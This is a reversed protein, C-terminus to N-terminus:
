REIRFIFAFALLFIPVTAKCMTYFSMTIYVMSKNSLGIDLGTTIGSPVM